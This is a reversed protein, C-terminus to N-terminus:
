YWFELVKEITEEQKICVCTKGDIQITNNDIINSDEISRRYM